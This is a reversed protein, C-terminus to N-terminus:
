GSAPAIASKKVSFANFAFALPLGPTGLPAAGSPHYRGQIQDLTIGISGQFPSM